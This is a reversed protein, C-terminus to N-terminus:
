NLVMYAGSSSQSTDRIVIDPTSTVEMEFNGTKIKSPVTGLTLKDDVYKKPVLQQDVTYLGADYNGVYSTPASLEIANLNPKM